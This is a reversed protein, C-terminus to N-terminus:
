TSGENRDEERGLEGGLEMKTKQGRGGVGYKDCVSGKSDRRLEGGGGGGGGGEEYKVVM